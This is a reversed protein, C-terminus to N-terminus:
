HGSRRGPRLCPGDYRDVAVRLTCAVRKYQTGNWQWTASSSIGASADEEFIERYGHTQRARLTVAGFAPTKWILDLRGGDIRYIWGPCAHVGCLCFERPKIFVTHIAPNLVVARAELADALHPAACAAGAFDTQQELLPLLRAPIPVPQTYHDESAILEVASAQTALLVFLLVILRM